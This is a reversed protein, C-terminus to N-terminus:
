WINKVIDYNNWAIDGDAKEEMFFKSEFPRPKSKSPPYTTFVEHWETGKITAVFIPGYDGQSHYKFSLSDIHIGRDANNIDIEFKEILEEKRQELKEVTWHKSEVVAEKETTKDNSGTSFNCSPLSFLGSFLITFLIVKKM